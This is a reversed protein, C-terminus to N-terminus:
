LKKLNREIDLVGKKRDKIKKCPIGVCTSWPELSKSVLSMSGVAVGEGIVVNPLITCGSGIIAHKKIIVGGGLINRYEDPLTPNTFYDGSYDDSEAYIASRSSLGTYDEFVIGDSGGFLLCASAIHVYSGITINGSIICFDDIRVNNGISIKDPSYISTKRSLLINDGISKFGIEVLEEKSYFSVM